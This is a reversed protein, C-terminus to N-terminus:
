EQSEKGGDKITKSEPADPAPIENPVDEQQQREKELAALEEPTQETGTSDPAEPDKAIVAGEVGEPSTGSGTMPHGEGTSGPGPDLAQMEAKLQVGGGAMGISGKGISALFSLLAAMLAISVMAYWPMGDRQTNETDAVWVVAIVAALTQALTLGAREAANTWFNREALLSDAM